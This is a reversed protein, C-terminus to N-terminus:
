WVLVVYKNQKGFCSIVASILTLVIKDDKWKYHLFWGWREEYPGFISQPYLVSQKESIQIVPKIRTPIACVTTIWKFNILHALSSTQRISKSVYPINSKPLMVIFHVPNVYMCFLSHSVEAWRAFYIVFSM